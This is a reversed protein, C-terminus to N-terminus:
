KAGIGDDEEIDYGMERLKKNLYRIYDDHELHGRMFVSEAVDWEFEEDGPDIYVHDAYMLANEAKEAHGLAMHLLKEEIKNEESTLKHDRMKHACGFKEALIRMVKVTYKEDGTVREVFRGLLEIFSPNNEYEDGYDIVEIKNDELLTPYVYSRSFDRFWRLPYPSRM